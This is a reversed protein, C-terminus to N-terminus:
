TRIRLLNAPSLPLPPTRLPRPHSPVQKTANDKLKTDLTKTLPEILSDIGEAICAPNITTLKGQSV